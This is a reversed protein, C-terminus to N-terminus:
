WNLKVTGSEKVPKGGNCKPTYEVTWNYAGAPAPKGNPMKGKWKQTADTTEFLVTKRKGTVTLKFTTVDNISYEFRNNFTMNPNFNPLYNFKSPHGTFTVDIEGRVNCAGDKGNLIYLDSNRVTISHTSKGNNWNYSTLALKPQIVLTDACLVTDNGLSIEGRIQGIRVSITDSGILKGNDDFGNVWYQGTKYVKVNQGIGGNSWEYRKAGQASLMLEKCGDRDPGLTVPGTTHPNSANSQPTPSATLELAEKLLQPRRKFGHIINPLGYVSSGFPELILGARQYGCSKGSKNPSQIIDLSKETRAVYLRGDPGLEIAGFTNEVNESLVTTSTQIATNEIDVQLVGVNGKLFSIYLQKDNPSFCLGYAYGSSPVTSHPSVLGTQQDFRFLEVPSNERYCMAVALMNGKTSAKMYGIAESNSGSGYDKHIEGTASIIPDQIGEATVLYAYFRQSNWAHVIVWVDYGNQHPIGVMKEAVAGRLLLNKKTVDGGRASIRIDPTVLLHNKSSGQGSKQNKTMDIVSYRLGKEDAKEGITFLYYLDINGPDPVILASQTASVDGRLGYGNPMPQHSKDYVNIGDSYFLLRGKHDSISACGEDTYLSGSHRVVAKGSSFDIGGGNGFYWQSFELQAQAPIIWLLLVVVILFHSFKPFRSDLNPPTLM